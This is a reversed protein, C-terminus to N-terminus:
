LVGLFITGTVAGGIANLWQCWVARPFGLGLEALGHLAGSREGLRNWAWLVLPFLAHSVGGHSPAAASIQPLWRVGDGIFHRSHLLAFAFFGIAFFSARFVDERNGVEKRSSVSSYGACPM